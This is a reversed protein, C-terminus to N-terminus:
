GQLCEDLGRQALDGDADFQTEAAMSVYGTAPMAVLVSAQDASNTRKTADVIIYVADFRLPAVIQVLASFCRSGPRYTKM